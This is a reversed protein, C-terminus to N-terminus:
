LSNLKTLREWTDPIAGTLSNTALLLVELNPAATSWEAPLSGNLQNNQLHLKRLRPPLTSPLPGTLGADHLRLEVLSKLAGAPGAPAFTDQLSGRVFNENLWLVQLGPFASLDLSSLSFQLGLGSLDILYVQRSKKRFCQIGTWSGDCHDTGSQWSALKVADSSSLTQKFALLAACHLLPSPPPPHDAGSPMGQAQPPTTPFVDVASQERM